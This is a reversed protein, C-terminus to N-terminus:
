WSAIAPIHNELGDMGGRLKSVQYLGDIHTSWRGWDGIQVDHCLCGIITAIVGASKHDCPDSLRASLDKLAKTYYRMPEMDDTIKLVPISNKRNWLLLTTAMSLYLATPDSFGMRVWVRHFPHNIYESESAIFHIIQLTRDNLEIGLVGFRNLQFLRHPSRTRTEPLYAAGPRQDRVPREGHQFGGNNAEPAMIELPIVVHRPKKRRLQGVGAMVHRHIGNQIDRQRIDDPHSLNIFTIGSRNLPQHRQHQSM